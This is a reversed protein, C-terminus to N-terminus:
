KKCTSINLLAYLPCFSVSSTIIFVGAFILLIIAITGSILNGLYAGIIAVAILIRILRDANGM